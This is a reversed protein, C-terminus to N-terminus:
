LKLESCHMYTSNTGIITILVCRSRFCFPDNSCALPVFVLCCYQFIFLFMCVCLDRVIGKDWEKKSGLTADRGPVPTGCCLEVGYVPVSILKERCICSQDSEYLYPFACIYLRVPLVHGMSIMLIM